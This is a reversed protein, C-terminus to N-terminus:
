AFCFSLVVGLPSIKERTCDVNVAEGLDSSPSAAPPCYLPLSTFAFGAGAGPRLIQGLIAACGVAPGQYRCALEWARAAHAAPMAVDVVWLPCNTKKVTFLAM